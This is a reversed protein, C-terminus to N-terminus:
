DRVIKNLYRILREYSKTLVVNRRAMMTKATKLADEVSWRKKTGWSFSPIVKPSLGPEFCNAFIGIV